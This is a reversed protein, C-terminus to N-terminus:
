RVLVSALYMAGAGSFTLAVTLLQPHLHHSEPILDSASLYIFYGGFLALGAGLIGPPIGHFYTAALGVSLCLSSILCGRLGRREYPEGSAQRTAAASDSFEHALLAATVVGSLSPSVHYALGIAAGNLVAHGYHKRTTLQAEGDTMWFTGFRDLLLAIVFGLGVLPLLVNAGREAPRVLIAQPLFIFFAAAIVTGASFGPALHMRDTVRRAFAGGAFNALFAACAVIIFQLYQVSTWSISRGAVRAIRRRLDSL